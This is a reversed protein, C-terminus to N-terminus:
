PERGFLNGSPSVYISAFLNASIISFSKVKKKQYASSLIVCYFGTIITGLTTSFILISSNEETRYCEKRKSEMRAIVSKPLSPRNCKTGEFGNNRPKVTCQSKLKLLHEVARPPQLM